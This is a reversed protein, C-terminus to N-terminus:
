DARRTLVAGVAPRLEATVNPAPESFTLRWGRQRCASEAASRLEALMLRRLSARRSELSAIHGRLDVAPAAAGRKISKLAAAIKERAEPTEAGAGPAPATGQPAPLDPLSQLATLARQEGANIPALDVQPRAAEKRPAAPKRAVRPAEVAPPRLAARLREVQEQHLRRLETRTIEALERRRRLQVPTYVLRDEPREKLSDLQQTLRSIQVELGTSQEPEPAPPTKVVPPEPVPVPAGTAPVAPPAQPAAAERRMAFDKRVEREAREVDPRLSPPAPEAIEPAPLDAPAPASIPALSTRVPSIRRLTAMREDMARLEAAGPHLPLYQELSVTM